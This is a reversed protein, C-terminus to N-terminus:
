SAFFSVFASVRLVALKRGKASTLHSIQAPYVVFSNMVYNLCLACAIVAPQQRPESDDGQPRETYPALLSGSSTSGSAGM